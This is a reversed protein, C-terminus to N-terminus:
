LNSFRDFIFRQAFSNDNEIKNVFEEFTYYRHPHPAIISLGIRICWNNQLLENSTHNSVNPLPFLKYESYAKELLEEEINEQGVLEISHLPAVLTDYNYEGNPFTGDTCKVIHQQTIDTTAKGVIIGNFILENTISVKVKTGNAIDRRDGIKFTSNEM